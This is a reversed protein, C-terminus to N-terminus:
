FLYKVVSDVSECKLAKLVDFLTALDAKVDDSRALSVLLRALDTLQSDKPDGYFPVVPCFNTLDLVSTHFHRDVAITKRFFPDVPYFHM